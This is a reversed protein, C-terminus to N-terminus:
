ARSRLPSKRQHKPLGKAKATEWAPRVKYILSCPECDENVPVPPVSARHAGNWQRLGVSAVPLSFEVAVDLPVPQVSILEFRHSPSDYFDPFVFDSRVGFFGSTPDIAKEFASLRQM